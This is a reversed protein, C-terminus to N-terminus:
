PRSYFSDNWFAAFREAYCADGEILIKRGIFTLGTDHAMIPESGIESGCPLCPVPAERVKADADRQKEANHLTAEREEWDRSNM